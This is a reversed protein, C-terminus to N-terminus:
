ACVNLSVGISGKIGCFSIFNGLIEPSGSMFLVRDSVFGTKLLLRGNAL